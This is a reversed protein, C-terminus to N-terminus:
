LGELEKELADVDIPAKKSRSKASSISAAVRGERLTTIVERMEERTLVNDRAKQRWTAIKASLEPSLM